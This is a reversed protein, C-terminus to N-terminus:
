DFIDFVSNMAAIMATIKGERKKGAIRLL